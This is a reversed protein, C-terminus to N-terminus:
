KGHATIRAMEPPNATQERAEQQNILFAEEQWEKRKSPHISSTTHFNAPVM